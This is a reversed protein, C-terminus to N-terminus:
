FPWADQLNKVNKSNIQDLASYRNSAYNGLPMVWQKPDQQLKALDDNALAAGTWLTMVGALGLLLRSAPLRKAM